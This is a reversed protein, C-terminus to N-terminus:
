FCNKEYKFCTKIIDYLIIFFINIFFILKISTWTLLRVVRSSSDFEANKKVYALFCEIIHYM